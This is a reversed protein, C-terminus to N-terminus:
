RVEFSITASYKEELCKDRFAAEAPKRVVARVIWQGPALLRITSRGKFDTKNSFAYDEKTSFGVYTASVECFRAPQGKHLVQLDLEEGPQKLYPNELAVIEMNHGVPKAFADGDTEGVNILAKTYNEYYLSLVVNNLGELSGLKHHLRGEQDVYMTYFGHATAATAMYGGKKRFNLATALFGGEGAELERSTGDPGVLKFATLKKHDLFDQVPFRHGFGFYVKTQAGTRPRLEPNYDVANIWLNHAFGVPAAFLGIFLLLCVSLLSKAIKM